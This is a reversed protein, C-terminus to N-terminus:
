KTEQANPVEIVKKPKTNEWDHFQIGLFRVGARMQWMGNRKCLEYYEMDGQDKWSKELHGEQIAQCIIDHLASPAQSEDTDIAWTSGDWAFGLKALVRGDTYIHYFPEIINEAPYISTLFLEDEVLIYKYGEKYKM